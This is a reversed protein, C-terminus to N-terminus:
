CVVVYFSPFSYASANAGQNAQEAEKYGHEAVVYTEEEELIRKEGEKVEELPAKVIKEGQDIADEVADKAEENGRMPWTVWEKIYSVVVHEWHGVRDPGLLRVALFCFPFDLATLALYVGLASWGYDRSLKKLRQSLSLNQDATAESATSDQFRRSSNHFRRRAARAFTSPSPRSSQSIRKLTSFHSPRTRFPQQSTQSLLRSSQVGLRTHILQALARRQMIRLSEM